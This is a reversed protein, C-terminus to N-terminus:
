NPPRFEITSMIKEYLDTMKYHGSNDPFSGQESPEFTLDYKGTDIRISQIYRTCTGQTYLENEFLCEAAAFGSIRYDSPSCKPEDDPPEYNPDVLRHPEVSIRFDGPKYDDAGFVLEKHGSGGYPSTHDYVHWDPPFRVKLGLDASSYADWDGTVTVTPNPALKQPLEPLPDSITVDIGISNGTAMSLYRDVSLMKGNKSFRDVRQKGSDDTVERCKTWGQAALRKLVEAYPTDIDAPEPGVGNGEVSIWRYLAPKKQCPDHCSAYGRTILFENKSFGEPAIARLWEYEKPPEIKLMALSASKLATLRTRYLETLDSLAGLSEVDPPNVRYSNRIVLWSRQSAVVQERDAGPASALRKHYADAMEVDLKALDENKCIAAEVSREKAKACDFSTKFFPPTATSQASAVSAPLPALAAIIVFAKRIALM